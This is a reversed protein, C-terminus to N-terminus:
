TYIKQLTCRACLTNCSSRALVDKCLSTSRSRVFHKCSESCTQKLNLAIVQAFLNNNTFVNQM